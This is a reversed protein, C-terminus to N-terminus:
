VLMKGKYKIVEVNGYKDVLSISQCYYGMAKNIANEREWIYAYFDDFSDDGIADSYDRYMLYM